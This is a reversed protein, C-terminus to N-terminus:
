ERNFLCLIMATQAGVSSKPFCIKLKEDQTNGNVTLSLVLRSPTLSPTVVMNSDFQRKGRVVLDNDYGVRRKSHFDERTRMCM